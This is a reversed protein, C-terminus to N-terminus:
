AIAPFVKTTYIDARRMGNTAAARGGLQYMGGKVGSWRKTRYGLCWDDREICHHSAM